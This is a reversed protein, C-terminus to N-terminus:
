TLWDELVLDPVRAFHQTDHTVLPAMHRLATAAIQLDMDGLRAGSSELRAKLAGFERAANEDFALISFDALMLDLSALNEAARRSKYVGYALEGVSFTSVALEESPSVRSSLDLKGRLFAVCHDTDLIKM